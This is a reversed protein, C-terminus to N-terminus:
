EQKGDYREGTVEYIARGNTSDVLYALFEELREREIALHLTVDGSFDVDDCKVKMVPLDRKLREYDPYEVVVDFETFPVFECIGAEDIAVKAGKAYARVLGGAGLLIGGFYRTIVVCVGTLGERKIVELAPMGATGSPEGDDSFRAIETGRLIYAYVNHTADPHMKRIEAIFEKAENEDGVPKIYGIFESKKEIFSAQARRSVTKYSGGVTSAKSNNDM